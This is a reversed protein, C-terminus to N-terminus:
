LLPSITDFINYLRGIMRKAIIIKEKEDKPEEQRRYTLAFVLHRYCITFTYIRLIHSLM